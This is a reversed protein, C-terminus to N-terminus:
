GMRMAVVAVLCVVLVALVAKGIRDARQRAAFKKHDM